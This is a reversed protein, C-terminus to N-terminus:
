LSAEFGRTQREKVVDVAAAIGAGTRSGKHKMGYEGFGVDGVLRSLSLAKWGRVPSMMCLLTARNMDKSVFRPVVTMPAVAM